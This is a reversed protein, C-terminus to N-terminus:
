NAGLGITSITTVLECHWLSKKYSSLIQYVMGQILTVECVLSFAHWWQMRLDKLPWFLRCQKLESWVLLHLGLPGFFDDQVFFDIHIGLCCIISLTEHNTSIQTMGVELLYAQRLDRYVMSTFCSLVVKPHSDFVRVIWTHLQGLMCVRIHLIMHYGQVWVLHWVLQLLDYRDCDINIALCSFLESFVQRFGEGADTFDIKKERYYPQFISTEM